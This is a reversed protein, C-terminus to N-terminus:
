ATRDLGDRSGSYRITSSTPSHGPGSKSNRQSSTKLSRRSHASHESKRIGPRKMSRLRENLGHFRGTSPHPRHACGASRRGRQVNVTEGIAAGWPRLSRNGDVLGIIGVRRLGRNLAHARQVINANRVPLAGAQQADIIVDIIGELIEAPYGYATRGGRPPQFEIPSKLRASLGKTDINKRELSGIFEAIRPAGIQQKSGGVGLGVGSQLGRQSLVRAEGELVYCDIEIDGIVLPKDAAGAIVKLAKSM